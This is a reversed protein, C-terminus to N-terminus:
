VMIVAPTTIITSFTDMMVMITGGSRIHIPCAYNALYMTVWCTIELPVITIVSIVITVTILLTSMKGGITNVGVPIRVSADFVV